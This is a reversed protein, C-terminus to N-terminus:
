TYTKRKMDLCHNLNLPCEKQPEAWQEAMQSSFALEIDVTDAFIEYPSFCGVMSEVGGDGNQQSLIRCCSKVSEAM